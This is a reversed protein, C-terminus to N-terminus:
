ASQFDLSIRTRCRDTAKYKMSLTLSHANRWRHSYNNQSQLEGQSSAVLFVCVLRCVRDATTGQPDLVDFEVVLVIALLLNEQLIRSTVNSEQFNTVGEYNM